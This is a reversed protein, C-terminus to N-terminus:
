FSEWEGDDSKNSVVKNDVVKNDVVKPASFSSKKHVVQDTRIDYSSDHKLKIDKAKVQNKGVFEKADANSVVLKAIDDTIIAIDYTQSAVAANQQTQQDLQNVADNIQEIGMLQEKSSM